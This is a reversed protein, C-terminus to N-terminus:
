QPVKEEDLLTSDKTEQQKPELMLEEQQVFTSAVEELPTPKRQFSKKVIDLRTSIRKLEAFTNQIEKELNKLTQAMSSPAQTPQPNSVSRASIKNEEFPAVLQSNWYRFNGQQGQSNGYYSQPLYKARFYPSLYEDQLKVKMDEWDTIGPEQKIFRMYKLEEWFVQARGILNMKAFRVKTNVAWNHWEFFQEMENLWKVFIWPSEDKCGDFDLAEILVM